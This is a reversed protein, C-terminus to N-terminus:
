AKRDICGTFNPNQRENDTVPLNVDTGYSAGGAKHFKGSPFVVDETRNYQRILRRLDGLRMGRGFQWFAKERFFLDTAATASTPVPLAAMAPVALPGLNQPSTRLANLTAMMGPIDNAKLKAEAEILRADLGTAVPVPDNRNLWIQQAV